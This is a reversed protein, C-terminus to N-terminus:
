TREVLVVPGGCSDVLSLRIRTTGRLVLPEDEDRVIGAAVARVEVPVTRVRTPGGRLRYAIADRGPADVPTPDGPVGGIAVYAVPAETLTAAPVDVTLVRRAAADRGAPEETAVLEHVAGAVEDVEGDVLRASREARVDEVAAFGVALLAVALLVALVARIM